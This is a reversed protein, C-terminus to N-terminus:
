WGYVDGGGFPPWPPWKWPPPCPGYRENYNPPKAPPNASTPAPAASDAAFITAAAFVFLAAAAFFVNSRTCTKM